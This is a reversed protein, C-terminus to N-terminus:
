FRRAPSGLLDMLLEFWSSRHTELRRREEAQDRISDLRTKVRRAGEPSLAEAEQFQRMAQIEGGDVWLGCGAPCEDLMVGSTGNWRYRLMGRGCYICNLWKELDIPESRQGETVELMSWRTEERAGAGQQLDLLCDSHTLSLGAQIDEPGLWMGGCGGCCVEVIAPSNEGQVRVRTLPHGCRPCALTTPKGEQSM